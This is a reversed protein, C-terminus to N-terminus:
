HWHDTPVLPTLIGADFTVGSSSAAHDAWGSRPQPASAIVLLLLPAKQTICGMVTGLGDRGKFFPAM